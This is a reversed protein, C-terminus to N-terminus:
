EYRGGGNVRIEIEDDSRFVTGPAVSMKVIVGPTSREGKVYTLKYKIHKSDMEGALDDVSIDKPDPMLFYTKMEAAVFLTVGKGEIIDEGGKPVQAVINGPIRGPVRIVKEIPIKKGKLTEEAQMLSQGTVSSVQVLPPGESVIVTVVRGRRTPINAEPKQVTIHNYPVDARREYRLVTLSLGRSEALRKGEEVTKGRVDPCIIDEGSKLLIGTTAYAALVFMAVPVVLYLSRRLWKM